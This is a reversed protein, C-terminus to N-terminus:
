QQTPESGLGLSHTSCAGTSTQFICVFCFLLRFLFLLLILCCVFALHFSSRGLVISFFIAEADDLPNTHRSDFCCSVFLIFTAM